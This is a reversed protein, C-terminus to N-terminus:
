LEIEAKYGSIFIGYKANSYDSFNFGDKGVYLTYPTIGDTTGGGANTWISMKGTTGSGDSTTVTPAGRMQVPFYVFGWLWANAGVALGGYFGMVGNTTTATGYKESVICYRQCLALETGIPRQEFPTAVSGKEVQVGWIDLANNIAGFIQLQLNSGTGITKGSISAVNITVSYRAWSTTVAPPTGLNDVGFSGGSGFDQELGVRELTQNSASKAWFSVTVTQGAFTRVDEIKQALYSRTNTSSVRLFYQGEYGAVPATGPTFTQQTVSTTNNGYFYTFWRDATYVFAGNGTTFSTGRQWINFNGNIIVNRFGSVPTTPLYAYNTLDVNTNVWSSGNYVYQVNNGDSDIWIDGTSPTSPASTQYSVPAVVAEQGISVWETGSWIYGPRTTM